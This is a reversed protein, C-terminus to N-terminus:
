SILQFIIKQFYKRGATFSKGDKTIKFSQALHIATEQPMRTVINPPNSRPRLKKEKNGRDSSGKSALEQV